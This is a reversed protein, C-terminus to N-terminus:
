ASAAAPRLRTALGHLPVADQEFQGSRVLARMLEVLEPDFQKGTWRVLEELADDQSRPESYPRRNTMADFSDAIRVIRAELPIRDGRLGDPYGSGDVNEHHWRAVRRALEFGEGDGLIQEGWITHNRVTVWEDPTLPGPKRLISDPVHLKGVDHLMAAWGIQEAETASAGTARALEQATMQVRRIHDGTPEDKAEAGRALALMGSRERQEVRRATERWAAASRRARDVLLGNLGGVFVFVGGRILWSAPQDLSNVNAEQGFVFEGGAQPCKFPASLAVGTSCLFVALGIPALKVRVM